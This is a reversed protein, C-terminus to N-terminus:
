LNDDDEDDDDGDAEKEDGGELVGEEDERDLKRGEDKLNDQEEEEVEEPAPFFDTYKMDRTSPM